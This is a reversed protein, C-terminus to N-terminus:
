VALGALLGFEAFADDWAGDALTSSAGDTTAKDDNYIEEIALERAAMADADNVAISAADLEPESDALPSISSETKDSPDNTVDGSATYVFWANSAFTADNLTNVSETSQAAAEETAALENASRAM